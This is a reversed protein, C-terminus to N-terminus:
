TKVYIKTLCVCLYRTIRDISIKNRLLLKYLTFDYEYLIQQFSLIRRFAEPLMNVTM